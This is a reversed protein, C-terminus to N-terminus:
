IYPIDPRWYAVDSYFMMSTIRCFFGPGWPLSMGQLQLVFQCSREPGGFRPPHLQTLRFFVCLILVTWYSSKASSQEHDIFSSAGAAGMSVVAQVPM